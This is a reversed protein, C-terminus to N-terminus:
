SEQKGDYFEFIINEKAIVNRFSMGLMEESFSGWHMNNDLVFNIKKM